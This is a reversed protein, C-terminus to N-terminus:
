PRGDRQAAHSAHVRGNSGREYSACCYAPSDAPANGQTGPHYVCRWEAEVQDAIVRECEAWADESTRYTSLIAACEQPTLDIDEPIEVGDLAIRCIAVMVLDGAEASETALNEIQERTMNM